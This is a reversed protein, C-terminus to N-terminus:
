FWKMITSISSVIEDKPQSPMFHIIFDSPVLAWEMGKKHMSEINGEIIKIVGTKPDFNMDILVENVRSQEPAGQGMGRVGFVVLYREDSIKTVGDIFLPDNAVMGTRYAVATVLKEFDQYNRLPSDIQTEDIEELNKFIEQVVEQERQSFFERNINMIRKTIWVPMGELDTSLRDIIIDNVTGFTLRLAGVDEGWIVKDIFLKRPQKMGVPHESILDTAYDLDFSHLPLNGDGDESPFNPSRDKISQESEEDGFGFNAFKAELYPNM